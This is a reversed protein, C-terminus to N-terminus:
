FFFNVGRPVQCAKWFPQTEHHSMRVQGVRVRAVQIRAFTLDTSYTPSNNIQCWKSRCGTLVGVRRVRKYGDNKGHGFELTVQDDWGWFSTSLVSLATMMVICCALLLRKHDLRDVLAVTTM